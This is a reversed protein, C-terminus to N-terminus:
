PNLQEKAIDTLVDFESKQVYILEEEGIGRVPMKILVFEDRGVETFHKMLNFGRRPFAFSFQGIKQLRSAINICSGVFDKGEGVSIVQGRAIGCRLKQPPKTISKRINPLFTGSYEHCIDLLNVVINGIDIPYVKRTSTVCNFFIYYFCPTFGGL